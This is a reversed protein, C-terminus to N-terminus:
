GSFVFVSFPLFHCSFLFRQRHELVYRNGVYCSFAFRQCSYVVHDDEHRKGDWSVDDIQLHSALFM